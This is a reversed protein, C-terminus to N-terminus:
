KRYMWRSVEKLSLKTRRLKSIRLKKLKRVISAEKVKIRSLRRRGTSELSMADGSDDSSSDSSDESLSAEGDTESTDDAPDLASVLHEDTSRTWLSSLNVRRTEGERNPESTILMRDKAAFDRKMQAKREEKAHEPSNPDWPLQSTIEFLPRTHLDEDTPTRIAFGTLSHKLDFPLVVRGHEDSDIVIGYESRDDQSM